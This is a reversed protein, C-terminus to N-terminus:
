GAADAILSGYALRSVASGSRLASSISSHFASLNEHPMIGICAGGIATRYDGANPQDGKNNYGDQAKQM